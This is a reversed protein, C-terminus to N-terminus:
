INHLPGPLTYVCVTTAFVTKVSVVTKRITLYSLVETAQELKGLRGSLALKQLFPTHPITTGMIKVLTMAESEIFLYIFTCCRLTHLCRLLWLTVTEECQVCPSWWRRHTQSIVLLVCLLRYLLALTFISIFCDVLFPNSCWSGRWGLSCNMSGM